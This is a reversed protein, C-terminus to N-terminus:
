ERLEEPLDPPTSLPRFFMEKSVSYRDGIAVNGIDDAIIADHPADVDPPKDGGVVVNIVYGERIVAWNKM